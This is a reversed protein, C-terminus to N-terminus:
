TDVMNKLASVVAPRHRYLTMIYAVHASLYDYIPIARAGDENVAEVELGNGFSTEGDVALTTINHIIVGDEIYYNAIYGHVNHILVDKGVHCNHLWANYIGTHFPIGGVMNVSHSFSNLFIHGTFKSNTIHDPSFDRSVKIFGWDTSSCRQYILQGIEEDTLNRYHGNLNHSNMMYFIM